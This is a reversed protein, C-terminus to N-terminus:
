RSGIFRQGQSRAGGRNKRTNNNQVRAFARGDVNLVVNGMGGGKRGRPTVSVEEGPHVVLNTGGGALPGHPMSPNWFGGASQTSGDPGSHGEQHADMPATGPVGVGAAAASAERLTAIYARLSDPLTVGQMQAIAAWLELMMKQLEVMEKMPDKVGDFHGGAEAQRILAATQEDVAIKGEKAADRIQLLTPALLALAQDATFGKATLDAFVTGLEGQLANFTEQTLSGTARLADMVSGLGEAASVLDENAGVKQRFDALMGLTGGIEIGHAQAAAIAQDIAPGMERMAEVTSKGEKKLAQFMATGIIGLREMREKMKEVDAGEAASELEKRREKVKKAYEDESLGLEKLKDKYKGMKVNIADIAAPTLAAQGVMHRFLSALGTVGASLKELRIQELKSMAAQLGSVKDKLKDMDEASVDRSVGVGMGSLEKRQAAEAEKQEKSKGGFLGKIFGFAQVGAGILGMAGSAKSLFGGLGGGASKIQAVSARMQGFAGIAAGASQLIKGFVNDFVQGMGLLEQSVGEIGQQVLAWREFARDAHGAEYADVKKADESVAKVMDNYAKLKAIPGDPENGTPAMAKVRKKIDDEMGWTAERGRKEFEDYFKDWEKRADEAGKQWAARAREAAAAAAKAAADDGAGGFRPGGSITVGGSSVGSGRNAAKRKDDYWDGGAARALGGLMGLGPNLKGFWGVLDRVLRIGERAGEALIGFFAKIEPGNKQLWVALDVFAQTIDGIAAQIEPSSAVAAGFQRWARDMAVGMLDLQDAMAASARIANQDLAGAMEASGDALSKLSGIVDTGSKGFIAMAAATKQAPDRIGEIAKATAKLQEEPTMRRLDALNLGLKKFNENGDVIGKQMKNTAAALSEISSNGLKAAIEMQQLADTSLGTKTELAALNDAYDAAAKAASVVAATVAGVAVTAAGIGAAAVMGAPGMASLVSGAKGLKGALDNGLSAAEQKAAKIGDTFAKTELALRYRVEGRAM